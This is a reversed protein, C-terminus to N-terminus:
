QLAARRNLADALLDELRGIYDEISRLHQLLSDLEKSGMSQCSAVGALQPAKASMADEDQGQSTYRGESSGRGGARDHRVHGVMGGAAGEAHAPYSFVCAIMQAEDGPLTLAKWEEFAGHSVEDEATGTQQFHSSNKGRLELWGRFPVPVRDWPWSPAEGQSNEAVRICRACDLSLSLMGNSIPLCPLPVDEMTIDEGGLGWYLLRRETLQGLLVALTGAKKGNLRKRNRLSLIQSAAVWSITEAYVQHLHSVQRFHMHSRPMAVWLARLAVPPLHESNIEGKACQVQICYANGTKRNQLVNGHEQDAQDHLPRDWAALEIAVCPFYQVAPCACWALAEEVNDRCWLGVYGHSRVSARLGCVLISPVSFLPTGHYFLIERRGECDRPEETSNDQCMGRPLMHSQLPIRLLRQSAAQLGRRDLLQTNAQRCKSIDFEGRAVKYKPNRQDKILRATCLDIGMPEKKELMDLVQVVSANGLDDLEDQTYPRWRSYGWSAAGMDPMIVVSETEARRPVKFSAPGPSANATADITVSYHQLAEFTDQTKRRSESSM